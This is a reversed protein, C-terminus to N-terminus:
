KLSKVSQYVEKIQRSYKEIGYENEASIQAQRIIDVQKEPHSQIEYLLSALRTSDGKPYLYGNEMNRIIEATGGSEAGVMILGSLIGEITVRGLAEKESCVLGIDANRRFESLDSIFGVFEVHDQLHHKEIYGKLKQLYEVDGKGAIVLHINENYFELYKKVAELAEMQGKGKSILGCIIVNLRDKHGYEKREFFYKDIRFGDRITYSNANFCGYKQFVTKSICIVAKSKKLLYNHFFKFDFQMDYHEDLLERIHWVHPLKYYFACAAGIYHTLSNTHIIDINWKKILEGLKSFARVNSTARKLRNNWGADAALHVGTTYSVICYKIKEKKLEKIIPGFTPIVVYVAVRCERLGIILDIMSRNAGYCSSVNAIFLINQVNNENKM